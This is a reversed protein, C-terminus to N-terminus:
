VPVMAKVLRVTEGIGALGIDHVPMAQSAAADIECALREATLDVSKLVRILGRASLAAARIAQEQERVTEFPVAVTPTRAALAEAMTNYGAQCVSVAAHALREAFDPLSRVIELGPEGAVPMDQSLPGTVITWRRDKLKSFARAKLAVEVLDRGVAGGGASVLVELRGRAGAAFRRCVYGTYSCLDALQSMEPFSAALPVLGPDGHVLIRDYYQRARDVMAQARLVKRPRQLVDRVSSVICVRDTRARAAVLLSMLEAELLRRGFPFTETIVVDPVQAHFAALLMDRRASMLDGNVAHGYADVLEDFLEDKARVAPLQVFDMGTPTTGAPVVGGAVLTVRMGADRLAEAIQRARVYHGYGLLHQVWILVRGSM